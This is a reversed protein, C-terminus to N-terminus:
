WLKFCDKERTAIKFENLVNQGSAQQPAASDWIYNVKRSIVQFTAPFVTISLSYKMYQLMVNEECKM